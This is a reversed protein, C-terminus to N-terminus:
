DDARQVTVDHARHTPDHVESGKTGHLTTHSHRSPAHQESLSKGERQRMNMITNNVATSTHADTTGGHTCSTSKTQTSCTWHRRWHTHTHRAERTHRDPPANAHPSLTTHAGRVSCRAGLRVILMRYVYMISPRSTPAPPPAWMWCECGASEYAGETRGGDPRARLACRARAWM